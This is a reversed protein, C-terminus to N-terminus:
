VDLLFAIVNLQSYKVATELGNYVSPVLDSYLLKVVNLNGKSIAINFGKSLDHKRDSKQNSKLQINFSAIVRLWQVVAISNHECAELFGIESSVRPDSLLRIASDTHSLRIARKLAL